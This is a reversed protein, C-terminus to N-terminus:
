RKIQFRNGNQFIDNVKAGKLECELGKKSNIIVTDYKFGYIKNLKNNIKIKLTDGLEFGYEYKYEYFFEKKIINEIDIPKELNNLIISMNSIEDNSFQLDFFLESNMNKGKRCDCIYNEDIIKQQYLNYILYSLVLVIPILLYYKIKIQM